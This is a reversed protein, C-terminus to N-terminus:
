VKLWNKSKDVIVAPSNELINKIFRDNMTRRYEFEATTFVSYSIEQEAFREALKIFQSLKRPSVRGVFLVDTEVRPKGGFVGTFVILKCEGVKQAARALLDAPYAKNKHLLNLLEPYLAFHKNVQFYKRRNKEGVALFEMKSLERLTKKLFQSSIGTSVRLETASFSRQPHALFLNILKSKPKSALLQALM